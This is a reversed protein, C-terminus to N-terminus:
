FLIQILSGFYQPLVHGWHGGRGGRGGGRGWTGVDIYIHENSALNNNNTRDIIFTENPYGVIVLKFEGGSWMENEMMQNLYLEFFITERLFITM